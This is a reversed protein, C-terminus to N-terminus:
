NKLVSFGDQLREPQVTNIVEVFLLWNAEKQHSHNNQAKGPLRIIVGASLVTPGGAAVVTEEAGAVEVKSLRRWLVESGAEAEMDAECFKNGPRCAVEDAPGPRGIKM